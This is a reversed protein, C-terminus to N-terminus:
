PKPPNVNNVASIGAHATAALGIVVVFQDFTVAKLMLAVFGGIYVVLPILKLPDSLM